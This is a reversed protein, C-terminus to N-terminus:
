YRKTAFQQGEKGKGYFFNYKRVYFFSKKEKYRPMETVTKKCNQQCFFLRYLNLTLIM